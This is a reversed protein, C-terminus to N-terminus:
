ISCNSYLKLINTKQQKHTINESWARKWKQTKQQFEVSRLLAVTKM